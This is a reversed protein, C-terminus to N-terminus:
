SLTEGIKSKGPLEPFTEKMREEAITAAEELIKQSDASSAEFNLSSGTVAGADMMISSLINSIDGLEREIQPSISGMGARIDRLVNIAPLLTVSIDGLETVTSLRLVIQELALKSKIVMKEMKRIEALESALINARNTEHKVMANVIDNFLTKDRADFHKSAQDLRQIQAEIRRIANDIRPKLPPPPRVTEKIVTSLSPGEKPEWRTAFSDM